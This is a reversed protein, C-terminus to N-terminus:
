LTPNPAVCFRFGSSGRRFVPHNRRRYACRVRNGILDFAGGRVVRASEM